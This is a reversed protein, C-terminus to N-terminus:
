PSLTRLLQPIQFKSVFNKGSESLKYAFYNPGKKNYFAEVMVYGQDSLANLRNTLTADAVGVKSRLEGYRLSDSENLEKLIRFTTSDLLNNSM